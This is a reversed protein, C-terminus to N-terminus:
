KGHYYAVYGLTSAADTFIELDAQYSWDKDPIISIGNWTPLFDSWWRIDKRAELNLTAHHHLKTVSTSLDILHRLFLCGSRVVKAAFALKEILSLLERKTCEKKTYWASLLSLLEQFKPPPLGIVQAVSDIEIALYTICTTPGELKEPAIPVGLKQFVYQIRELNSACQTSNAPGATWFNDLYHTLINILYNNRLIWALADAFSNFIFVSSRLGFPLRLEVFYFGQWFTCLLEINVLRVPFIRFAHKIDIKGMLTGPGLSRLLEIADDFKAFVVSISDKPIKENVPRGPPSSLDIILRYSGDKKPVCGLPSCHLNPFPPSTFPGAIHGRSLEKSIVESM